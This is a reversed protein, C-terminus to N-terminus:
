QQVEMSAPPFGPDAILYILVADAIICVTDGASDVYM